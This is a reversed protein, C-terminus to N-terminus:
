CVQDLLADLDLTSRAGLDAAHAALFAEASRRGEDRLMSLFEWEANLKSSYGLDTMTASAVRHIRM